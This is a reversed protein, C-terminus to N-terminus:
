CLRQRLKTVEGHVECPLNLDTISRTYIADTPTNLLDRSELFLPRKEGRFIAFRNNSTLAVEDIELQSFDPNVTGDIVLETRPSWKFDMSPQIKQEKSVTPKGEHIARATLTPRLWVFSQSTPTTLGQVIQLNDIFSPAETPLPVSVSLYNQDSRPTRRAVMIRWPLKSEPDYRLTSYPIRFVASYGQQNIQAAAKFDYDPAFDENDNDATHLGDGTAGLANVRFFQASKKKGAADVYLVLFDMTRFVKDFRTQPARILEPNPDFAEIGVYLAQTDYLVRFQSKFTAPGGNKPSHEFFQTHAKARSWAPHSLSGNLEITEHATLSVAQVPEPETRSANVPEASKPSLVQCFATSAGVMLFFYTINKLFLM